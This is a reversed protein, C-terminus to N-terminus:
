AYVQKTKQEIKKPSTVMNELGLYSIIRESSTKKKIMEGTEIAKEPPVFYYRYPKRLSQFFSSLNIQKKIFEATSPCSLHYSIEGDEYAFINNRGIIKPSLPLPSYFLVLKGESAWQYIIEARNAHIFIRIKGERELLSELSRIVKPSNFAAEMNKVAKEPVEKLFHQSLANMKILFM